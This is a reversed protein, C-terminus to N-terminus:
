RDWVIGSGNGEPVDAEPIASAPRGQVRPSLAVRPAGPRARAALGRAAHAPHGAGSVALTVDFVTTTAPVAAEFVAVVAAQQASLPGSPAIAPTVDELTIGAAAAQCEQCV